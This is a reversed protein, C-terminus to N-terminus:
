AASPVVPRIARLETAKAHRVEELGYQSQLNLWFEATTGFYRGFREATDATVARRGNVIGSIRTQPVGIDKALRYASVSLPELFEARLVEGPHINPLRASRPRRETTTPSKSM